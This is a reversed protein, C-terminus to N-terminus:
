AELVLDSNVRVSSAEHSELMSLALKGLQSIFCISISLRLRIKDRTGNQKEGEFKVSLEQLQETSREEQKYARAKHM